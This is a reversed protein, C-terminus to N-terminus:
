LKREEQRQKDKENKDINKNKLSGNDNTNSDKVQSSDVKSGDKGSVTYSTAHPFFVKEDIKEKNENERKLKETEYDMGLVNLTTEYSLGLKGYLTEVLKIQSELDLLETKQIKLTPSIEVPYNNEKMAIQYFKNITSELQENIKNITKLLENYNIKTTTISSSSDSSIFSIGLAELVRLKYALKTDKDTIDSKPEILQLEEVHGMGTYVIKKNSMCELLSAHSYGVANEEDENEMLEKRTKQFYIKKAKDEIIERDSEEITDLMIQSKLAKFIPSVGYLGKLKNVRSIGVRSPDLLAIKDGGKYAEYIETPYDRKIENEVVEEINILKNTRLKSYKSRTSNIRSKLTNVDFSLVNDGDIKIATVEIMDLPYDVVGYGNESNGMLYYIFNGEIYTSIINDIILRKLDIQENFDKILQKIEKTLRMLNNNSQKNQKNGKKRGKNNKAEIPSPFNYNIKYNTNINNEIIEVVRGILDEYNIYTKIAGNIKIVKNRNTQTGKALDKIEDLTLVSSASEKELVKSYVSSSRKLNYSAQNVFDKSYKNGMGQSATLIYNGDLNIISRSEGNKLEPISIDIKKKKSSNKYNSKRTKMKTGTIAKAM